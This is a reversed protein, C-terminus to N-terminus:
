RSTSCGTILGGKQVVVDATIRDGPQVQQLGQPDQVPYTMTMASMFGPINDNDVSLQGASESKAM